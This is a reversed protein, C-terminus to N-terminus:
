ELYPEHCVVELNHGDVDLVFAAFYHPHYHARVGPPGNDKAGAALAADYFARIVSRSTARLAVHQKQTPEGKILWLDPKGKEGFGIAHPATADPFQMLLEYGLPALAKAYLPAAAAPDTVYISVHDIM